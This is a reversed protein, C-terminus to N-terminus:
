LGLQRSVRDLARDLRRRHTQPQGGLAAAIEPWTHGAARLDALRLEEETLLARCQALLERTAALSDPARGGTLGDLAVGEVVRRSDRAQSGHRRAQSALKRRAITLLLKLLDDPQNLEYQGVAARLLFTALVSQCVDASDLVRRLRPDRLRLQVERRIVPEYQRVLEAAADPDGARVRCLLDLFPSSQADAM